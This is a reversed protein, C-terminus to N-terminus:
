NKYPLNLERNFCSFIIIVWPFVRGALRKPFVIHQPTNYCFSLIPMADGMLVISIAIACRHFTTQTCLQLVGVILPSLPYHELHTTLIGIVQQDVCYLLVARSNGKICWLSLRKKLRYLAKFLALPIIFQSNQIPCSSCARALPPYLYIM